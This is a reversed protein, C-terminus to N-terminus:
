VAVMASSFNLMTQVHASTPSASDMAHQKWSERSLGTEDIYSLIKWGDQTTVSVEYGEWRARQEGAEEVTSKNFGDPVYSLSTSNPYYWVAQVVDAEDDRRASKSNTDNTCDMLTYTDTFKSSCQDLVYDVLDAHLQIRNGFPMTCDEAKFPDSMDSLLARCLKSACMAQVQAETPKARIIKYASSYGAEKACQAGNAGVLVPRFKEASCMSHLGASHFVGVPNFGGLAEAVHIHIVAQSIVVLATLAIIRTARLM